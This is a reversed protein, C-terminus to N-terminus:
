DLHTQETSKNLSMLTFIKFCSTIYVSCTVSVHPQLKGTDSEGAPKCM